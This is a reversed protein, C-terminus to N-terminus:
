DGVRVPMILMLYEFSEDSDFPKIIIPRIPDGINFEVNVTDINKMLDILKSSNFGVAIEEADYEIDIYEESKSSTSSDESTILITNNAFVAKLLKTLPNCTISIRNISQIFSAREIKIKLENNVPIIAQYAPYKGNILRSFIIKNKLKFQIYNDEFNIELTENGSIANNLINLSKAPLIIDKDEGEYKISKDELKVLRVSDTAVMTLENYKLSFLVGTLVARLEDLSVAFVTKSIYRKLKLSDIEIKNDSLTEPTRPFESYDETLTIEFKITGSIIKLVNDEKKLTITSEPLGKIISILKKGHVAIIGDEAGNVEIESVYTISLDTATFKLTDGKLDLLICETIPKTSRSPLIPAVLNLQETINAKSTSFVM